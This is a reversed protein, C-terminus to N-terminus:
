VCLPTRVLWEPCKVVINELEAKLQTVDNYQNVGTVVGVGERRGIYPAKHWKERETPNRGVTEQAVPAKTL